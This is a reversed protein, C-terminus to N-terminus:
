FRYRLEVGSERTWNEPEWGIYGLGVPQVTSDEVKWYHMWPGFSWRRGEVMLQVRYGRGRQQRNTVDTFGIGTDGLYSRQSGNAFADYELQPAMVLGEGLAFRLAVGVPVYWYHSRRRYGIAGTTTVGRLDNYLYRAGLGAYPVWIVGGRRYDRGALARFELLRDPVDQQTGSGQYELDAQSYRGEFRAHFDSYGLATYSGSIGLRDGKLWM